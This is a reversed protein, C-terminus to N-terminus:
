DRELKDFSGASGRRRGRRSRMFTATGSVDLLAGSVVALAVKTLQMSAPHPVCSGSTAEHASDPWSAPVPQERHRLADRASGQM